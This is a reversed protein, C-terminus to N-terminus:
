NWGEQVETMGTLSYLSVQYHQGRVNQLQVKLQVPDSEETGNEPIEDYTDILLSGDPKFYGDTNALLNISVGSHLSKVASDNVWTGGQYKQRVFTGATQDFYARYYVPTTFDASKLAETRTELLFNAVERASTKLRYRQIQTGIGPVTLTAAIAIIVMVVILEILTAGKQDKM